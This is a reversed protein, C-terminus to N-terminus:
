DIKVRRCHDLWPDVPTIADGYNRWYDQYYSAVRSFPNGPPLPLDLLFRPDKPVAFCEDIRNEIPPAGCAAASNSLLVVLRRQLNQHPVGEMGTAGPSDLLELARDLAAKDGRRALNLAAWAGADGELQAINRLAASAEAEDEFALYVAGAARIMPDGADLLTRLHTARDAGCFAAFASGLEFSRNADRWSRRPCDLSM